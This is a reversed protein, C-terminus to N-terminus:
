PRAAVRWRRAVDGMAARVDDRRTSYILISYGARASPEVSRFPEFVDAPVFLGDLHTVSIAAWEWQEFDRQVNSDWVSAPVGYEPFPANGFYSILVKGGGLHAIADRLAPLDQGWDINSDALYRYGVSPGGSWRNFYSLYHPAIVFASAAQLAVLAVCGAALVRGRADRGWRELALFLMLPVLLLGYRVGLDLRNLLTFATFVVVTVSWVLADASARRWGTALASLGFAIAVLEAPTSKLALAVPMYYWWGVGSTRGLLFAPHGGRQHQAQSVLGAVVAPLRTSGLPALRAPALAFGHLTWVVLLSTAAMAAVQGLARGFRAFGVRDPDTVVLAVFAAPFLAAASYKAALAIALTVSVAALRARTRREVYRALALVAALAAVVFCMDTTALASHAIMNPSLAVLAAGTAAIARGSTRRLSVYVLVVLPIGILVIASGRALRIAQAYGTGGALAPAAFSLLVPLPAIGDEALGSFDGHQYIALGARLYTTEDPTGSTTLAFWGAQLALVAALASVILLDTKSSGV